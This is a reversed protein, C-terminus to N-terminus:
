VDQKKDLNEYYRREAEEARSAVVCLSMIVIGLFGGIFMGISFAVM